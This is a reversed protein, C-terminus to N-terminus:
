REWASRHGVFYLIQHTIVWKAGHNVCDDIFHFDEIGGARFKIDNNRVIENKVAFSIGVNCRVLKNMSLPPQINGTEIDKYNFVVLDYNKGYEFIKDVYTPDLFDDDDLFALWETDVMPLAFNRVIGAGGSPNTLDYTFAKIKDEQNITVSHNDFIVIAKWNPNTQKRLSDLARHLSYRGLTPILFTVESM